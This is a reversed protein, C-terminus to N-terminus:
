HEPIILFEICLQASSCLGKLQELDLKAVEVIFKHFKLTLIHELMESFINCILESVVAIFGLVLSM